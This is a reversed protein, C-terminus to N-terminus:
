EIRTRKSSANAYRNRTTSQRNVGSSSTVSRGLIEARDRGPFSTVAVDLMHEFM